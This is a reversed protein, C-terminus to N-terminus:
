YEPHLTKLFDEKLMGFFLEKEHTHIEQLIGLLEDSSNVDKLDRLVDIDILSTKIVEFGTGDKVPIQLPVHNNLNLIVRSGNYPFESKFAVTDSQTNPLGFKFDFHTCERLDRDRYESIYRMSIRTWGVHLPTSLIIKLAKEIEKHYLEWGIYNNLCSFVFSNPSIQLIIQENYLLNQGGLQIRVERGSVLNQVPVQPVTKIPRDTYTYSNDFAQFLIGPIIEYSDTTLYRFEVIAERISDPNIRKPLRM